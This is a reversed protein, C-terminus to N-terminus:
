TEEEKKGLLLYKVDVNINITAPLLKKPKEPEIESIDFGLKKLYELGDKATPLNKVTEIVTEYTHKVKSYRDNALEVAANYRESHLKITNSVSEEFGEKTANKEIDYYSMRYGYKSVHVGEIKESRNILNDWEKQIEAFLPVVKDIFDYFGIDDYEVKRESDIMHKKSESAKNEAEKSKNELWKILDRKIM